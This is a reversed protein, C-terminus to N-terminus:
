VSPHLNQILKEVTEFSAHHEDDTKTQALAHDEWINSSQLVLEVLRQKMQQIQDQTSLDKTTEDLDSESINRAEVYDSKLRALLAREELELVKYNRCEEEAEQRRELAAQDRVMNESSFTVVHRKEKRLVMLKRKAQRIRGRSRIIDHGKSKAEKASAVARVNIFQKKEISSLVMSQKYSRMYEAKRSISIFERLQDVLNYVNRRSRRFIRMAEQAEREAAERLRTDAVQGQFKVMAQIVGLERPCSHLWKSAEVAIQLMECAREIQRSTQAQIIAGLSARMAKIAATSAFANVLSRPAVRILYLRNQDQKEHFSFEERNFHESTKISRLNVYHSVATRFVELSEEYEQAVILQIFEQMARDGSVRAKFAKYMWAQTFDQALEFQRSIRDAITLASNFETHSLGPKLTLSSHQYPKMEKRIMEKAKLIALAQQRSAIREQCEISSHNTNSKKPSAKTPAHIKLDQFGMTSKAKAKAKQGPVPVNPSPPLTTLSSERAQRLLKQSFNKARVKVAPMDKIYPSPQEQDSPMLEISTFCGIGIAAAVNELAVIQDVLPIRALPLTSSFGKLDKM